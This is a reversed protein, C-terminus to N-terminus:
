GNPPLEKAAVAPANAALADERAKVVFYETNELVRAWQKGVKRQFEADDIHGQPLYFKDIDVQSLNKYGLETAMASLLELWKHVRAQSPEGHLLQFYEHWRQRVMACDSFVVDIRNLAQAKAPSVFPANRESMLDLFLRHMADTREKRKQAWLTFVVGVLPGLVIALGTIWTQLTQVRLTAEALQEPAM